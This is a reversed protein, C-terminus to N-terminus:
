YGYVQIEYLVERLVNTEEKLDQIEEKMDEIGGNWCLKIAERLEEIDTNDFKTQFEKNILKIIEEM